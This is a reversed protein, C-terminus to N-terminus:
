CYKIRNEDCDLSETIFAYFFFTEWNRTFTQLVEIYNKDLKRIRAKLSVTREWM